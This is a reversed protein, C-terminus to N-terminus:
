SLLQRSLPLPLPFCVRTFPPSFPRFLAWMSIDLQLSQVKQAFLPANKKEDGGGKQQTPLIRRTPGIELVLLSRASLQTQFSGSDLRLHM